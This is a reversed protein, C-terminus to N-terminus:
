KEKIILISVKDGAQIGMDLLTSGFEIIGVNTIETHIINKSGEPTICTWGKGVLHAVSVTDDVTEQTPGIVKADIGKPIKILKSM